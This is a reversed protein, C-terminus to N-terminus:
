IMLCTNERVKRCFDDCIRAAWRGTVRLGVTTCKECYSSCKQWWGEEVKKNPQEEVKWHRFSCEAGFKCGSETKYFQCEPRHWYDCPLKTSSDHLCNKCPQRNTKGYSSRGRLSWKISASKGRPTPPESSPGTQTDTKCSSSRPAPFQMPRREFVAKKSEVSLLNRTRKWYWTLRPSEYSSSKEWKERKQRRFKTISTGSRHKMDGDNEVESLTAEIDESSNGHRAFRIRNETSWVRTNEIQVAKELVDDLPIKTMSFLIADM